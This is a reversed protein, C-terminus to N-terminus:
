VGRRRRSPRASARPLDVRVLVKAPRWRRAGPERPAGGGSTGGELVAQRVAEALADAAHAERREPRGAAHARADLADTRADLVAMLEAGVEPNDRLHLNFAGAADSYRRLFRGAHIRRRRADADDDGGERIRAAEERLDGLSSGAARVILEEEAAPHATAAGAIASVQAPSLEGQRAAARARPLDHLRRATALADTAQGLTSRSRRVLHEAPSRAGLRRWLSTEAVRAAAAAKLARGGERTDAGSPM